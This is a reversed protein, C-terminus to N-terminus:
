NLYKRKNSEHEANNRAYFIQNSNDHLYYYYENPTPELVANITTIAPNSIPTPPLGMVKRTNYPTAKEFDANTLTAKWDKQEYLTTADIGLFYRDNLRKIIIDAVMKAEAENYAERELLSAITIIEYLSFKSSKLKFDGLQDVKEKLTLVLKEVIRMTSADAFFNYTDPYLFGEITKGDKINARLFQQIEPSFEAGVPNKSIVEFEGIDFKSEKKKSFEQELIRGIEDYRLGEPITVWVTNENPSAELEKVVEVITMDRQLSHSGAKIGDGEGSIRMYWILLAPNNLLNIEKLKQAISDRSEGVAINVVVKDDSNSLPSNISSQYWGFIAGVL